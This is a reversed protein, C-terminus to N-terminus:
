GCWPNRSARNWEATLSEYSVQTRAAIAKIMEDRGGGAAEAEEMRPGVVKQMFDRIQLRVAEVEPEFSFDIAM